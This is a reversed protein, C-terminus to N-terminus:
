WRKDQEADLWRILTRLAPLADAIAQRDDEALRTIGTGVLESRFRRWKELRAVAPETLFLQVARRDAPDVERLLLGEDTLQNVLTSVSNAALYLAKAAAAVGIGPQRQVVRMLEVHAGRLRPGPLTDHLQARVLRRLAASASMLEDGLAGPDLDAV